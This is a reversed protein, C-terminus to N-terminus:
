CRCVCLVGFYSLTHKAYYTSPNFYLCSLYILIAQAIVIMWLLVTGTRSRYPEIADYIFNSAINVLLAVFISAFWWGPSGILTYIESIM